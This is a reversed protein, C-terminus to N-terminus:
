SVYNLLKSKIKSVSSKNFTSVAIVESKTNKKFDKIIHNVKKEDILDIKNLVILEKKKILKNSYKKLENKVQQYSKKLDESTIDILHLLSKCREIHKLFQIGLGTGKHAGEVLGPIDAITIEKNDYSAVGLNPNLTTFQYNAIKPNANTVSALLSSKGANPLGIIGIDAITKLQLWITFEEGQTGKTFKRPARNTSSKFRTNGLGGKGGAAATYEESIQTFDYILTKNDEEFVQTGLPVKLILDQGSKGTQNQGAGNEGRKAKHHQQYRFDILTNLNQEARLIVSGGKGGDGGDPGGFEIFKERRFSPSGDGGNGAKIYIKVQDLFKM